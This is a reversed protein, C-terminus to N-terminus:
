CCLGGKNFINFVSTFRDSLAVVFVTFGLGLIRRDNLMPWVRLAM